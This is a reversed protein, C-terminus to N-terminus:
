GLPLDLAGPGDAPRAAATTARTLDAAFAVTRAVADHGEAAASVRLSIDDASLTGTYGHDADCDPDACGAPELEVRNLAGWGVSLTVEAPASVSRGTGTQERHVRQVAVSRVTALPVSETSASVYPVPTLDDAPHDDAHAVLLRGHTLVLVTVHRRVEDADFTTEQQVCFSLVPEGALADELAAAVIQPHYGARDIERRLRGLSQESM